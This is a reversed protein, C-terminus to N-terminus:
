SQSAAAARAAAFPRSSQAVISEVPATPYCRSKGARGRHGGQRRARPLMLARASVSAAAFV